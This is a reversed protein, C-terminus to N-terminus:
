ERSLDKPRSGSSYKPNKHSERGGKGGYMIENYNTSASTGGLSSKKNLPPKKHKLDPISATTDKEEKLNQIFEEQFDTTDNVITKPHLNVLNQETGSARKDSNRKIAKQSQSQTTSTSDIISANKNKIEEIKTIILSQKKGEHIIKPKNELFLFISINLIFIKGALLANSLDEKMEKFSVFKKRQELLQNDLDVEIKKIENLLKGDHNKTYEKSPIKRVSDASKDRNSIIIKQNLQVDNKIISEVDIESTGDIRSRKRKDKNREKVQTLVKDFLSHTKDQEIYSLENTSNIAVLLSTLKQYNLNEIIKERNEELLSGSKNSHKPKIELQSKEITQEKIRNLFNQLDQSRKNTTAIDSKNLDIIDQSKRENEKIENKDFSNVWPHSFIDKVKLRSSIEPTLL